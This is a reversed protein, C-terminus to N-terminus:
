HCDSKEVYLQDFQPSCSKFTGDKFLIDSNTFARLLKSSSFILSRKSHCIIDDMLFSDGLVFCIDSLTIEEASTPLKEIGM